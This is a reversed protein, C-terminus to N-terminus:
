RATEMSSTLRTAFSYKSAVLRVTSSTNGPVAGVESSFHRHPKSESEDSAKARERQQRRAAARLPGRAPFRFGGLVRLVLRLALRRWRRALRLVQQKRRHLDGIEAVAQLDVGDDGVLQRDDIRREDDSAPAFRVRCLEGAQRAQDGLHELFARRLPRACLDGLLDLEQTGIKPGARILVIRIDANAREGFLEVHDHGDEGFDCALWSEVVLLELLELAALEIAQRERFAFGPVDGPAGEITSSLGAAPSAASAGRASRRCSNM